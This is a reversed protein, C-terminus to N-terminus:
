LSVAIEKSFRQHFIPNKFFNKYDTEKHAHPTIIVNQPKEAFFNVYCVLLGFVSLTFSVIIIIVNLFPLLVFGTDCM